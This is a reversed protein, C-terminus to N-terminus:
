RYLCFPNSLVNILQEGFGPSKTLLVPLMSQNTTFVSATIPVSISVSRCINVFNNGILIVGLLQDTRDLLKSVRRADKDKKNVLHRLRYRNIAMM